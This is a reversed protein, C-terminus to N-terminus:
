IQRVDVADGKKLEKVGRPIAVLGDALSLASIHASGHYAVPIVDGEPGTRVPIYSLRRDRKRKYDAGMSSRFLSPRWDCGMMKMIVPRVLIEFIIYSSVPNGPLGFIVSGDAIGFTTPKGPQVAVSDFLIDTGARKLVAPVFDYDGMSVGGTLVVMDNEDIASAVMKYTIEEDDIAIGYYRGCAGARELQALLQYANSNRIQANSPVSSPEVLESGTSIVAVSPRRAVSVLSAGASAMVAIDHPTIVRGRSLVTDGSRVDEGKVAINNKDGHKIFRVRNGPLEECYEVMVIYDAGDPLAAGTMIRSCTGESVRVSPAVGAVVTESVLLEKDLDVKRCAFGDVAAKNFPPMDVDSVIDDALVRGHCSLLSVIETGCLPANAMVLGEAEEITIMRDDSDKM